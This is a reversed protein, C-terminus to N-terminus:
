DPAGGSTPQWHSSM